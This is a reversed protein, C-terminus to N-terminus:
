FECFFLCGEVGERQPTRHALAYEISSPISM